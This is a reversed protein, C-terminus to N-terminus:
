LWHAIQLPSVANLMGMETPVWCHFAEKKKRFEKIPM